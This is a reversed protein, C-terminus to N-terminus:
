EKIVEFCAIDGVLFRELPSGIGIIEGQPYFAYLRCAVHCHFADIGLVFVAFHFNFSEALLALAKAKRSILYLSLLSRSSASLSDSFPKGSFVMELVIVLRLSDPRTLSWTRAFLNVSIAFSTFSSPLLPVSCKRFFLPMSLSRAASCERRSDSSYRLANISTSFFCLDKSVYGIFSFAFFILPSRKRRPYEKSVTLLTSEEIRLFPSVRHPVPVKLLPSGDRM